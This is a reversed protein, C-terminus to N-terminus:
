DSCQWNVIKIKRHTHWLKWYKSCWIRVSKTDPDSVAQEPGQGCGSRAGAESGSGSGFCQNWRAKLKFDMRWIQSNKLLGLKLLRFSLTGMGAPMLSPWVSLYSLCSRAAKNAVFILKYRYNQFLLLNQVQIRKQKLKLIWLASFKSSFTM